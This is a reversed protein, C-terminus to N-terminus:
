SGDTRHSLTSVDDTDQQEVTERPHALGTFNLRLWLGELRLQRQHGRQHPCHLDAQDNSCHPRKHTLICALPKQSGREHSKKGRASHAVAKRDRETCSTAGQVGSRHGLETVTKRRLEPEHHQRQRGHLRRKLELYVSACVALVTHEDGVIPMRGQDWHIESGLVPGIADVLIGAADYGDVVQAM